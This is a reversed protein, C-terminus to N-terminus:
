LHEIPNLDSSLSPWPLINVNNADLFNTTLRATHPRPNDQQFVARPAALLSLANPQLINQVYHQANLRGQVQM